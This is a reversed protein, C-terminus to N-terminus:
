PLNYRSKLRAATQEISTLEDTTLNIKGAIFLDLRNLLGRLLTLDAEKERDAQTKVPAAVAPVEPQPATQFGSPDEASLLISYTIEGYQKLPRPEYYYCVASDGVSYRTYNFDRGPSADPKWSADSLRKWNAFHLYDPNEGSALAAGGTSGMLALSDGRSIWPSSVDGELLMEASIRWGDVFFPAARNGEGLSTDFLARAGASIEEPRLNRLRINLRIGNSERSSGTTIFSFEVRAQMFVSEFIVAPSDSATEVHFHFASSDGLRYIRGNVNIEIFSSRPDKDSFFPEFLGDKNLGYLSFRGTHEHLALRVQGRSIEFAGLPVLTRALCLIFCVGAIRYGRKM